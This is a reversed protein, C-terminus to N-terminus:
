SPDIHPTLGRGPREAQKFEPPRIRPASGRAFFSRKFLWNHAADTAGARNAYARPGLSPAFDPPRLRRAAAPLRPRQRPPYESEAM